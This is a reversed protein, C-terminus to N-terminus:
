ESDRTATTIKQIATVTDFARAILMHEDCLFMPAPTWNLTAVYHAEDPCPDDTDSISM